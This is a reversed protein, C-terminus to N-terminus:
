LWNQPQALATDRSGYKPPTFDLGMNPKRM